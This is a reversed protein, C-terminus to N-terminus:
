DEGRNHSNEPPIFVEDNGNQIYNLRAKLETVEKQLAQILKAADKLANTIRIGQRLFTMPDGDGSINRVLDKDEILQMVNKLIVLIRETELKIAEGVLENDM